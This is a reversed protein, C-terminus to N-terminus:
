LPEWAKPSWRNAAGIVYRGHEMSKHAGNSPWLELNGPDNNRTDHDGHHVVEMRSLLRGIRLAMLLRHAMVYGDARAMPEFGPPVRVYKPGVYNGHTRKYTAGGKWAPNLPGTMKANASVQSEATWGSRGLVAINKMHQLTQPTTARWRGYCQRSCFRYKTLARAPRNPPRFAKGCQQCIPDPKHTRMGINYRMM